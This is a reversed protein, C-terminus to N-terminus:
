AGLQGWVNGPSAEVVMDMDLSDTGKTGESIYTPSGSPFAQAWVAGTTNPSGIPRSAAVPTADAGFFPSKPDMAM